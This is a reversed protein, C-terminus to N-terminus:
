RKIRYCTSKLFERLFKHNFSHGSKRARVEGFVHCGILSFDGILDLIKHRVPENEYRLGEKNIVNGNEDFVIANSLSGGKILGKKRQIPIENIFGFTRAGAIEGAAGLGDISFSLVQKKIGPNPFEIECLIRFTNSPSVSLKKDNETYSFEELVVLVPAEAEFEEIGASKIKELIPMGSGDLIPVEDGKIVIEANTIGVLTLVGLLHEVTSITEGDKGITTSYDGKVIHNVDAPIVTTKSPKKKVFYIGSNPPAPKIWVEAWKGTHLGIGEVYIEKKLSKQKM